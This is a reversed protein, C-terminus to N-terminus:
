KTLDREHKESDNQLNHMSNASTFTSTYSSATPMTDHIIITWKNNFNAGRIIIENLEKNLATGRSQITIFPTLESKSANIIAPIHSSLSTALNKKANEYHGNTNRGLDPSADCLALFNQFAADTLKNMQDSEATFFLSNQEDKETLAKIMLDKLEKDLSDILKHQNDLIYDSIKNCVDSVTMEIEIPEPHEADKKLIAERTFYASVCPTGELGKASHRLMRPRDGNEHTMKFSSNTPTTLTSPTNTDQTNM